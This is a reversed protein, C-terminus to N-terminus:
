SAARHRVGPHLSRWAASDRLNFDFAAPGKTSAATEYALCVVGRRSRVTVSRLDLHEARPPPAKPAPFSYDVLDASRDNVVLGGSSDALKGPSGYSARRAALRDRYRELESAFRRSEAAVDPPALVDEGETDGELSGADAVASLKTVRWGGPFRALWITDALPETKKHHTATDEQVVALKM